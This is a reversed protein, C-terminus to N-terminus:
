NIFIFLFFIWTYEYENTLDCVIRHIYMTCLLHCCNKTLRWMGTDDLHFAQSCANCECECECKMWKTTDMSRCRSLSVLIWDVFDIYVLLGVLQTNSIMLGRFNRFTHFSQIWCKEVNWFVSIGFIWRYKAYKVM